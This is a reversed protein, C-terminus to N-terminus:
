KLFIGGLYKLLISADNLTIYGDLDLDLIIDLDEGVTKGDKAYSAIVAKYDGIDVSKNGDYDGIVSYAYGNDIAYQKVDECIPSLFLKTGEAFANAAIVINEMDGTFVIRETNEGFANEDISTINEPINVTTDKGSYSILRGAIYGFGNDTMLLGGESPIDEGSIYVTGVSGTMPIFDSFIINGDDDARVSNIYIINEGSFEPMDKGTYDGAVVIIVYDEGPTKGSIKVTYSGDDSPIFGNKATITGEFAPMEDGCIYVTGVTKEMPIFDKFSVTGNKDATVANIYIIDDDSFEPINMGTYDGALILIIYDKGPTKGTIEVTYSGDETGTFDKASVSMSVTCVILVAIFIFLIKKM